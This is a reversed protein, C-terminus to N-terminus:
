TKTEFTTISRSSVLGDQVAVGFRLEEIKGEPGVPGLIVM